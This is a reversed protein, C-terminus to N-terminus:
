INIETIKWLKPYKLTENLKQIEVECLFYTDKTIFRTRLIKNNQVNFLNARCNM